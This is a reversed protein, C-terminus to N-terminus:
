STEIGEESSVSMNVIGISFWPQLCLSYLWRNSVGDILSVIKNM